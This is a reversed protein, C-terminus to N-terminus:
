RIYGTFVVDFSEAPVFQDLKTSDAQCIIGKHGKGPVMHDFLANAKITSAEVYENGYITVGSVGQQELLELTMFLNLGVGAASEYLTANPKSLFLSYYKKKFPSMQTKVDNYSYGWNDFTGNRFTGIYETMNDSIEKAKEEYDRADFDLLPGVQKPCSFSIIPGNNSGENTEPAISSANGDKHSTQDVPGLLHRSASLVLVLLVSLAAAVLVLPTISFRREKKCLRSSVYGEFCSSSTKNRQPKITTFHNKKASPLILGRVEEDDDDM